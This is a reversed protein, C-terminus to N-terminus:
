TSRTSFMMSNTGRTFNAIVGEISSVTPGSGDGSPHLARLHVLGRQELDALAVERHRVLQRLLAEQLEDRRVRLQVRLHDRQQVEHGGHQGRDVVQLARERDRAGRQVAAVHDVALVRDLAGLAVRLQGRQQVAAVAWAFGQQVVLQRQAGVLGQVARVALLALLDMEVQAHAVHQLSLLLLGHLRHSAHHRELVGGAVVVEISREVGRHEIRLPSRPRNATPRQLLLLLHLLALLTQLLCELSLALVESLRHHLIQLLLQLIQM